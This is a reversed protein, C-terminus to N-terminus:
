INPVAERGGILADRHHVAGERGQEDGMRLLKPAAHPPCQTSPQGSCGDVTRTDSKRFVVARCTRNGCCIAPRPGGAPGGVGRLLRVQHNVRASGIAM